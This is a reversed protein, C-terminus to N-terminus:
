AKFLPIVKILTDFLVMKAHGNQDIHAYALELEEVMRGVNQDTIFRAFKKVFANEQPTLFNLESQQFNFIFSERLMNIAYDLFAKLKDRSWPSVADVWRMVEFIKRSYSARMMDAFYDFFGQSDEAAGINRIASVFNGRALRAALDAQESSVHYRQMLSAAMEKNDIGPFHLQQTRSLITALLSAPRESVMIFVTDLPPEELVKLLKNAGADNMREPLWIIMVKYRGEFNKMSLKRIINGSEESYIMGTKKADSLRGLWQDLSFYPTESVISRWTSLYNDSVPTTSSDKIVPFVFHIDPHILKAAKVCSSCTGCADHEGPNLCNLYQAFAMAMPLTGVGEGGTFLQAHSVRGDKVMRILHEKVAQQGVIDRFFM